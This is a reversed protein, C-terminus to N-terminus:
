SSFYIFILNSESSSNGRFLVIYIGIVVATKLAKEGQFYYISDVIKWFLFSICLHVKFFHYLFNHM